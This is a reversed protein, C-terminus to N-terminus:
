KTLVAFFNHGYLTFLFGLHFTMLIGDKLLGSATNLMYMERVAPITKAQNPKASDFTRAFLRM